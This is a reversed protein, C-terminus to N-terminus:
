AEVKFGYNSLELMRAIEGFFRNKEFILFRARLLIQESARFRSRLTRFCNSHNAYNFVFM